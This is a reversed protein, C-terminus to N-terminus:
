KRVDKPLFLSLHIFDTIEKEHCQIQLKYGCRILNIIRHLDTSQLIYSKVIKVSDNACMGRGENGYLSTNKDARNKRPARRILRQLSYNIKLWGNCIAIETMGHLGKLWLVAWLGTNDRTDTFGRFLARPGARRFHM